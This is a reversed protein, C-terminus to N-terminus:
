LKKYGQYIADALMFAAGLRQTKMITMPKINHAAHSVAQSLPSAGPGPHKAHMLETANAVADAIFGPAASPGSAAGKLIAAGLGLGPTWQPHPRTAELMRAYGHAAFGTYAVAKTADSADGGQIAKHGYYLAGGFGISRQVHGIGIQAFPKAASGMRHLMSEAVLTGATATQLIPGLMTKVRNPPPDDKRGSNM